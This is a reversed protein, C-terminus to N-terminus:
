KIRQYTKRGKQQKKKAARQEPTDTSLIQTGSQQQAPVPASACDWPLIILPHHRVRGASNITEAREKGAAQNSLQMIDDSAM